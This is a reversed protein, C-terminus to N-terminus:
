WINRIHAHLTCDNGTIHTVNFNMLIRTSLISVHHLRIPPYRYKLPVQQMWRQLLLTYIGSNGSSPHVMDRQFMLIRRCTQVTESSQIESNSCGDGHFDWLKYQLKKQYCTDCIKVKETVKSTDLPQAVELNDEQVVNHKSGCSSKAKGVLKSGCNPPFKISPSIFWGASQVQMNQKSICSHLLTFNFNRKNEAGCHKVSSTFLQFLSSPDTPTCQKVIRATDLSYLM